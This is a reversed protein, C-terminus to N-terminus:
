GSSAGTGHEFCQTVKSGMAAVGFGCRHGAPGGAPRHASHRVLGQLKAQEARYIAQTIYTMQELDSM